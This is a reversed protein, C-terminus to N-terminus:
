RMKFSSLSIVVAKANSKLSLMQMGIRRITALVNACKLLEGTTLGIYRVFSVIAM